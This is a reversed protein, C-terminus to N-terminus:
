IGCGQSQTILYTMDEPIPARFTLYSGEIHYFFSMESCHLAQRKIRNNNGGYLTDGAIPHGIYSLHVRIQHTRGTIPEIDLVTHEKLRRIVKFRTIARQGKESVCREILSGEKRAIPADIVGEDEKVIGEVVAIYRKKILGNKQIFNHAHQNLAILLVGTTDRDLRNIPHFGAKRGKKNLHYIVGNAITDDYHFATPHVAIGSQKDLVIIHNDEYLVNIPIPSPVIDSEESLDVEIVDDYELKVSTYVPVGNLFIKSAFKLRNITRGSFGNNKLFEGVTLGQSGAGVVFRM